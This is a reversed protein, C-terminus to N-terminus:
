FNKKTRRRNPPFSPIQRQYMQWCLDNFEQTRGWTTTFHRDRKSFAQRGGLTRSQHDRGHWGEQALFSGHHTKAAFSGQSAEKMHRSYQLSALDETNGSIAQWINEAFHFNWCIRRFPGPWLAHRGALLAVIHVLHRSTRTSRSPEQYVGQMAGRKAVKEAELHLNDFASFTLACSDLDVAPRGLDQQFPLTLCTAQWVAATM